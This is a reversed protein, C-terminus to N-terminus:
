VGSAASGLVDDDAVPQVDAPRVDPPEADPPPAAPRAGAELALLLARADDTPLDFIRLGQGPGGATDAYLTALGARRQFLSARAGLTQIRGLPLAVTAQGVAGRRVWLVSGVLAWGHARAQARGLVVALPALALGWLAPTWALASAGVVILLPVLLRVVRRRAHLPSVPRWAEPANLGAGPPALRRAVALVESWRGFPVAAELGSGKADLGMTQVRLAHWGRARQLVNTGFVLAQVRRRPITREWRSVLGARTHLKDGEDRLEFGYFRSVTVAVGAAWSLALALVVVLAVALAPHAELAPGFRRLVTREFAEAADSPNVGLLNLASFALALYVLSFRYAGARVLRSFSLVFLPPAAQADAFPVDAPPGEALRVGPLADGDALAAPPAARRYARVADRLRNAEAVGVYSLTGEAGAGSGTLLLVRATGLLRALAPREIEVTQIRHLPISRRQRAFVGSEIVVEDAGVRYRFRLYTAALFPLLLLGYALLTGASAWTSRDAGAWLSVALIALTPANRAIQHVLTLPHLRRFEDDHLAPDPAPGPEPVPALRADDTTM